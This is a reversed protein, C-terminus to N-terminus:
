APERLGRLAPDPEIGVAVLRVAVDIVVIGTATVIVRSLNLEAVEPLDEALRGLRLLMDELSATDVPTAARYGTLLPAAKLQRWMQAADHDTLPLLRLAHDGLLDTAIGALGCTVVSGFLPDHAIGAVMEVGTLVKPAAAMAIGYCGLLDAAL